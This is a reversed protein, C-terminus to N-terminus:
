ENDEEEDSLGANKLDRDLEEDTMNNFGKFGTHLLEKAFDESQTLSDLYDEVLRDIKEQRTM